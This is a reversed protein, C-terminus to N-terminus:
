NPTTVPKEADSDDDVPPWPKVTLEGLLKAVVDQTRDMSAALNNCAEPTTIVQKDISRNAYDAAQEILKMYDKIEKPKIYTQGNIAADITNQKETMVPDVAASWDAFRKEIGDRLAPNDRACAKVATGVDRKVMFVARLVGFGERIYYLHELEKPQLKSGIEKSKKDLRDIYPNTSASSPKSQTEVANATEATADEAAIAPATGLLLSVAFLAALIRTQTM